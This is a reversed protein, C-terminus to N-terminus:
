GRLIMMIKLFDNGEFSASCTCHNSITRPSGSPAAEVLGPLATLFHNRLDAEFLTQTEQSIDM